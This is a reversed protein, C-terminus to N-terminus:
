REMECRSRVSQGQTSSAVRLDSERAQCEERRDMSRELDLSNECTPSDARATFQVHRTSISKDLLGSRVSKAALAIASATFKSLSHKPLHLPIVSKPIPHTATLHLLNLCTPNLHHM